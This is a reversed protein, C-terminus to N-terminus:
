FIFLPFRFHSFVAMRSKPESDSCVVDRLTQLALRDM